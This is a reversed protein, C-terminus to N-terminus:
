TAELRKVRYGRKGYAIGCPDCLKIDGGHERHPLGNWGLTDDVPQRARLKPRSLLWALDRSNCLRHGVSCGECQCTPGTSYVPVPLAVGGVLQSIHVTM